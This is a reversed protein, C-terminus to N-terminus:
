VTQSNIESNAPLSKSKIKTTFNRKNEIGLIIGSTKGSEMKSAEM